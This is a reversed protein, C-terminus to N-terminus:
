KADESNSYLENRGCGGQSGNYRPCVLRKTAHKGDVVIVVQARKGCACTAFGQRPLGFVSHSDTFLNDM